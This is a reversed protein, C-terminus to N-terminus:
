QSLLHTQSHTISSLKVTVHTVTRQGQGEDSRDRLWMFSACATTHYELQTNGIYDSANQYLQLGVADFTDLWYKM